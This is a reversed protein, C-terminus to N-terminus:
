HGKGHVNKSKVECGWGKAEHISFGCATAEPIATAYACQHNPLAPAFANFSGEKYSAACAEFMWWAIMHQLQPPHRLLPDEAELKEGLLAWAPDCRGRMSGWQQLLPGNMRITRELQM